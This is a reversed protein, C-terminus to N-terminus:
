KTDKVAQAIQGIFDVVNGQVASINDPTIYQAAVMTMLTKEDPVVIIIVMCIAFPIWTKKVIGKAEDSQEVIWEMGALLIGIGLIIATVTAVTSIKGALNVAYIIWPSIVPEM